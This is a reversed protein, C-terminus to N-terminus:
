KIKRTFGSDDGATRATDAFLHGFTQSFRTRTEHETGPPGFPKDWPM